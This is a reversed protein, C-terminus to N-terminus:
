EFSIVVEIVDGPRLAESQAVERTQEEGDEQRHLLVRIDATTDGEVSLEGLALERTLSAIRARTEEYSREFKAQEDLLTQVFDEELGRREIILGQQDREAAALEAETTLLRSSANLAGQRANDLTNATTLGRDALTLIDQLRAEEIESATRYQELASELFAIRKETLVIRANTDDLGRRLGARAGEVLRRLNVIDGETLRDAVLQFEGEIPSDAPLDELLVHTRWLDAAIWAETERMEDLRTRFNAMQDPRESLGTLSMGGAAGLAARVRLGPEFAIQGPNAVAGVVTVPRYTEVDLFIDQEDLVLVAPVGDQISRIQRGAVALAIDQSLEDLTKGLAQHTGLYPLRIEGATDVTAIYSHNDLPMIRVLVRDGLSLRYPDAAAGLGPLALLAAALLVAARRRFAGGRAFIPSLQRINM